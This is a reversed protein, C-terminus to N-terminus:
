GSWTAHTHPEYTSSKSLWNAKLWLKRSCRSRSAHGYTNQDHSTARRPKSSKTKLGYVHERSNKNEMMDSCINAKLILRRVSCEFNWKTM